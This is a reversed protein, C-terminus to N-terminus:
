CLRYVQKTSSGLDPHIIGTKLSSLKKNGERM